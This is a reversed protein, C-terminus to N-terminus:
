GTGRDFTFIVTALPPLVLRLSHGHGHAPHPEAHVEGANGLGSGGYDAADSNFRERFRGPRPVGIRYDHRPVPTFNCVVVALDHPDRGHRLYSLTGNEADNADIWHFGEPETDLEHLSKEAVYLHNLDRVVRQVGRHMPDDLLHWDLSFDHTWEREQAFEGGMFLLKKGPHTWMFGYYARLNAFRQWRDGPMKGILSGKGHVVEDHSLPLIFNEHFGYLLGFTMDNHHYRRHIPDKSMYQLTDHMWGLNWKFGFGLGGLYTPRSVMPWATSEEAATTAGTDLGFLLENTRKLFEIAELNERGGFRNPIWEGPPRSYDLYLMSAVADVRIGDAHFTDVWHRASSMLFNAVERRGFNYVYTNWDRQFGQRPDAHEYLATGDFRALGHADTPFHGPVWDLWLGLGAGHCADVFARFDDPTGFRSTPAFLGIAQYGWSGDFPFESVPMLEIHTFGMDRAYPVLTDALERYNLYRNGDQRRWSGLHVEYISIPATRDNHQWRNEIWAGDRWAYGSPGVIRSATGPSHEGQAAYPDAKLPLVAGEAGLIEYKYLRGAPLEPIFIEWVGSGHRLRMPYRRGDWDNFDGVVSVRKANPAWVAFAVGPIGQHVRCHAGLVHYSEHHNGEALLHIDLDGLVPPFAYIDDFDVPGDATEARLRYPFSARDGLAGAFFGDEHLRPLEGAIKGGDRELVWVRRAWPLFARVWLKGGVQHMGLYGFPDAHSAALIARAPASLTPV